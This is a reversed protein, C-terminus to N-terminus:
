KLLLLKRTESYGGSSLTCYYIGSSLIDRQFSYKKQGATMAEHAFTKVLRGSEDYVCLTVYANEKLDFQITTMDTFPNPYNTFNLDFKGATTNQVSTAINPIYASFMGSSHTAIVVLGDTTRYDIMDVISSGITSAGQQVWVTADTSTDLTNTAFLGVSSGVLYMSGSTLPVISAWRLSPGNGTGSTAQELNGGVKYWTTGGNPSYFLSYVNYNSCTVLIHDADTPDVAICSVNGGLPFAPPRISIPTPNGVNANDIRYLRGEDSGFYVRNAPVKSVAIASIANGSPLSDSFKEWNTSVTDWNGAYPIGSLNSNRWLCRGGALYMINNDNPDLTFPNVFLYGFGGIPDIRAFSDLGGSGNLKARMMKCNQISFYYAKGSDAIACFTGDGGRPTVWPSMLSASNTYWSGNDQAGGIIINNMMAHDIACTYFMTTIYGNNLPTWAVTDATNDNTMFVGGDNTSFMVDPNSPLFVLQHQDPHHNPYVNIVPLAGAFQYGGIQMTHSADAFGSTSRYLNTGGIFVTNTDTPKIKVVIDYSGQCTYTNFIGGTQPLSSSFNNWIGGVGTGAGSIYKYKWLSNWEVDGLYNTDPTGAGPTNALFYVQGEDLPSIGIKIRSYTTPFGAPTINTFTVGDTSRYIGRATGDSSLSAYLVGTSTIAIDTYYSNGGWVSAWTTGGDMSKYISGYAAVYVVDNVADAPNTVINWTIQSWTNFSTLTSPLTSPLMTWTQGSDTSKYVGDGYYYAGGGSASAGSGEGSGYYWVNTHGARTDQAVCTVTKYQNSPTIPTWTTGQNTSRWMAGSTSGAILNNENTVDVAFARTRGGVNWPGRQAWTLTTTRSLSSQAGADTPLTAAYALEKERIYDPVKGTVPDRLMAVEYADRGADDDGGRGNEPRESPTYRASSVIFLATIVFLAIVALLMKKM